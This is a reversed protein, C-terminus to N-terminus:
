PSSRTTLFPAALGLAVLLAYAWASAPVKGRTGRTATTASAAATASTPKM